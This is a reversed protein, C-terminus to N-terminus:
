ETETVEFPQEAGINEFCIFKGKIGLSSANKEEATEISIIQRPVTYEAGQNAFSEISMLRATNESLKADSEEVTSYETCFIGFPM